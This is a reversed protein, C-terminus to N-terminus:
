SGSLTEEGAFLADLRRRTADEFDQKSRNPPRSLSLDKIIAEKVRTIADDDLVGARRLESSLQLLGVATAHARLGVLGISDHLRKEEREDM